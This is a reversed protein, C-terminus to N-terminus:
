FPPTWVFEIIFAQAVYLAFLLLLTIGLAYTLRWRHLAIGLVTCLVMLVLAGVQWGLATDDVNVARGGHVITYILWPLPLGITIDFLNSGLSSSLAMDGYGKRAVIVSTILDPISTGAALLTMGLLTTSLNIYVGIVTTWWVMMYSFVAVWVISGFFTWVFYARATDERVDALTYYLLVCIPLKVLYWLKGWFGQYNPWSFDMPDGADFSAASVTDAPIRSSRLHVFEGPPWEASIQSEPRRFSGVFDGCVSYEVGDGASSTSPVEHVDSESSPQEGAIWVTRQDGSSEEAPAKSSQMRTSQEIRSSSCPGEYANELLEAQQQVTELDVVDGQAYIDELVGELDEPKYGGKQLKQRLLLIDAACKFRRSPNHAQTLLVKLVAAKFINNLRIMKSHKISGMMSSENKRDVESEADGRNKRWRETLADVKGETWQRLSGNFFMVTVYFLYMWLLVVSEYWEIEEGSFFVALLVLSIIYFACDRALPFWTLVLLEPTVLACFGIVFLVNFAASGVITGIGVNSESVFLGLISTALEPASGGAAMFTAGAVDQPIKFRYCVFELTPVFFEDCVLALALFMYLVGILYLVVVGNEPSLGDPYHALEEVGEKLQRRPVVEGGHRKWVDQLHNWTVVVAMVTGMAACRRLLPRKQVRMSHLEGENKAAFDAQSM